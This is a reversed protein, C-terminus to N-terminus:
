LIAIEVEDSYEVNDSKPARLWYTGKMAEVTKKDVSQGFPIHFAYINEATTDILKSILRNNSTINVYDKNDQRIIDVNKNIIM